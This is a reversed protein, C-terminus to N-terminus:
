FDDGGHLRRRVQRMGLWVALIVVPTLAAVVYTKELGAFGALPALAYGLLGVAYYSIAVVSLGEVTHQLRLQLDARRDMREMIKQNQASREVDVRTRLLEAARAARELMKALRNEASKATRMAPQYRRRMFETLMQRDAFRSERLATIRDHVIAEYASNAGFRFSHQVAQAELETSVALLDHLMQEAPRADDNMSDLIATLRPELENLRQSLVRARGLGLMSMARYTELEVLRHVLRGVRGDSTGPRVFVAFRMWGDADIRFDGAVVAAEDLVWIAAVSDRDFWGGIRSLAEQPDDPLLDVQVMVAAVRKGPAAMQWSESFIAAASPDFPRIPLGPTMAMYSVFEAHSEWKLDYRGLRGQYHSDEPDPRPGGHRAVLESLHAADRARDRTAADRPEKFAVFVATMPAEMRPSPRAHLENVLAYRLPHETAPGM